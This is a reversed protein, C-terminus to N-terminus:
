MGRFIKVAIALLNISLAMAVIWWIYNPVGQLFRQTLNLYGDDGALGYGNKVHEVINDVNIDSSISSNTKNGNSDMDYSSKFVDDGNEDKTVRTYTIGYGAEDKEWLPRRIYIDDSDHRYGDSDVYFTTIKAQALVFQMHYEAFNMLSKPISYLSYYNPPSSTVVCTLDVNGESVFEGSDAVAGNLGIETNLTEKFATYLEKCTGEIHILGNSDYSATSSGNSFKSNKLSSINSAQNEIQYKALMQYIYEVRYEYQLTYGTEEEFKTIEEENYEFVSSVSSSTIVNINAREPVPITSDHTRNMDRIQKEIDQLAQQVEDYNTAATAPVTGKLYGNADDKTKFIYFANFTYDASPLANGSKWNAAHPETYAVTRMERGPVTGVTSYWNIYGNGNDVLCMSGADFDSYKMYLIIDQEVPEGGTIAQGKSSYVMIWGTLDDTGEAHVDYKKICILTAIGVILALAVMAASYLCQKKNENM